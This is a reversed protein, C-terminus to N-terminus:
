GWLVQKGTGEGIRVGEDVKEVILGDVRAIKRRKYARVARGILVEHVYEAM